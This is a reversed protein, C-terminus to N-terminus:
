YLIKSNGFAIQYGQRKVTSMGSYQARFCLSIRSVTDFTFFFGKEGICYM